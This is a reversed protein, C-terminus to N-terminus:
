DEYSRLYAECSDISHRLYFLRRSRESKMSRKVSVSGKHVLVLQPSYMCLWKNIECRHRLIAEEFYLYTESFLGEYKSLYVPSLILCSGQLQVNLQETKYLDNGKPEYGILHKIVNKFGRWTSLIYARYLLQDKKKEKILKEIGERSVDQKESPNDHRRGDPSVIDPGIVAFDFERYLSNITEDWKESGLLTDNNMLVYFSIDPRNRYYNIGVNLGRAFGDNNPNLIVAVEPDCAYKEVLKKGTENPSANDVIVINAKDSGHMKKISEACEITDDYEQYHLIVYAVNSM